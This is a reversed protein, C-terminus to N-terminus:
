KAGHGGALSKEEFRILAEKAGTGKAFGGIRRGARLVRHCPLLLPWRNRALVNGVARAAGPRGCRTALEGYTISKGYPVKALEGLVKRSFPSVRSWDFRIAAIEKRRLVKGESYARLLDGPGRAGRRTMAADPYKRVLTKELAEPSSEWEVSCLLDETMVACATGFPLTVSRSRFVREGRPSPAPGAGGNGAPASSKKKSM